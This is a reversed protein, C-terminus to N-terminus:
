LYYDIETRKLFFIVYREKVSKVQQAVKCVVRGGIKKTQDIFDKDEFSCVKIFKDFGPLNNTLLERFKPDYKSYVVIAGTGLVGTLIASTTYFLFRSRFYNCVIIFVQQM